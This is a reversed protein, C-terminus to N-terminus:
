EEAGPSAHVRHLGGMAYSSLRVTPRGANRMDVVVIDRDLMDQAQHLAIVRNLASIPDETPLLIRQDRDLVLDWRREGMRVLGRVRDFVPEAAAFLAMAEEINDMAGDGAILPLDSRASRNPIMSIMHGETDILRLGDVHRWVAVPERETVAVELMGGARIRVVADEVASLELVRERLVPLDLSWSSIPFEVDVLGSVAAAVSVNAGTIDVGTVMFEPRHQFDTMFENYQATVAARNKDQAAWYSGIFVLLATPLGVRVARRFSPTLMLRQYRYAWRTPAPDRFPARGGSGFLGRLPRM